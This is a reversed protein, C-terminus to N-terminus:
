MEFETPLIIDTHKRYEKRETNAKSRQNKATHKSMHGPIYEYTLRVSIRRLDHKIFISNRGDNQTFRPMM